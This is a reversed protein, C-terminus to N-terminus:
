KWRTPHEKDMIIKPNKTNWVKGEDDVMLFLPISRVATCTGVGVSGKMFEVNISFWVYTNVLFVVYTFRRRSM